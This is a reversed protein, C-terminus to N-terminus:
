LLTLLICLCPSSVCGPAGPKGADKWLRSVVTKRCKSSPLALTQLLQHTFSSLLCDLEKAGFLLSDFKGPGMPLLVGRPLWRKLSPHVQPLRLPGDGARDSRQYSAGQRDSGAALGCIPAARRASPVPGYTWGPKPGIYYTALDLDVCGDRGVHRLYMERNLST